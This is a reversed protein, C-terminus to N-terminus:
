KRMSEKSGLQEPARTASNVIYSPLDLLQEQRLVMALTIPSYPGPHFDGGPINYLLRQGIQHHLAPSHPLIDKPRDFYTSSGEGYGLMHIALGNKKLSLACARMLDHADDNDANLANGTIAADMRKGHLWSQVNESTLYGRGIPITHVHCSPFAVQAVHLDNDDPAVFLIDMNAFPDIDHNKFMAAINKLLNTNLEGFSFAKSFEAQTELCLTSRVAQTAGFREPHTEYLQNLLVLFALQDQRLMKTTNHLNNASSDYFNFLM